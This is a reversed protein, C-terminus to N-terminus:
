SLRAGILDRREPETHGDPSVLASPRRTVQLAGKPGRPLLTLGSRLTAWLWGGPYECRPLPIRRLESALLVVRCVAPEGRAVSLHGHPM